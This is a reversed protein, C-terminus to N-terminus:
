LNQYEDADGLASSFSRAEPTGTVTGWLSV